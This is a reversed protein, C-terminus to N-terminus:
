VTLPDPATGDQPESRATSFARATRAHRIFAAILLAFGLATWGTLILWQLTSNTDPFYSLNRILRNGAGPPFWQGIAGWPGPLFQTPNASSAIPNAFLLFLVPGVM